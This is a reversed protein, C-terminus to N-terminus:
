PSGSTVEDMIAMWILLGPGTYTHNVLHEQIGILLKPDNYSIILQWLHSSDELAQDDFVKAHACISETTEITGHPDLYKPAPICDECAAVYKRTDEFTVCTHHKTMDLVNGKSDPCCLFTDVGGAEADNFVQNCLKSLTLSTMSNSVPGCNIKSHTKTFFEFTAKNEKFDLSRIQFPSWYMTTPVLMFNNDLAGGSFRKTPATNTLQGFTSAKLTSASM